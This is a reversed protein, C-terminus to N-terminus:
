KNRVLTAVVDRAHLTAMLLSLIRPPPLPPLSGKRSTGQSCVSAPTRASSLPMAEEQALSNAIKLPHNLCHESCILYNTLHTHMHTWTCTRADLNRENASVEQEDKPGDHEQSAAHGRGMAALVVAIDDTIVSLTQRM